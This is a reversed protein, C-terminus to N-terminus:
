PLVIEITISHIVCSFSMISPLLNARHIESIKALYLSGAYCFVQVEHNGSMTVRSLPTASGPRRM